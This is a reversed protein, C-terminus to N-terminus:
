MERNMESDGWINMSVNWKQPVLCSIPLGTNMSPGKQSTKLTYRRFYGPWIKEQSSAPWLNRWYGSHSLQPKAALKKYGQLCFILPTKSVQEIFKQKFETRLVIGWRWSCHGGTPMGRNLGKSLLATERHTLCLSILKICLIPFSFSFSPSFRKKKKRKEM